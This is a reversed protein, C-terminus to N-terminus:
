PVRINSRWDPASLREIANPIDELHTVNEARYAAEGTVSVEVRWTLLHRSWIIKANVGHRPRYPTSM